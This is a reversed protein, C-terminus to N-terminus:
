SPIALSTKWNQGLPVALTLIVQKICMPFCYYANSNLSLTSLFFFIVSKREWQDFCFVYGLGTDAHSPVIFNSM